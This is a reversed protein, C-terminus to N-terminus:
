RSCSDISGLQGKTADVTAVTLAHGATDTTVRIRAGSKLDDLKGMRGNVTIKVMAGIDYSHEKGDIGNMALKGAGASVVLGEHTDAEEALAPSIPLMAFAFLALLLGGLWKIHLKM